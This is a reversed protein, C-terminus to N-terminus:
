MHAEGTVLPIASNTAPQPVRGATHSCGFLDLTSELLGSRGLM